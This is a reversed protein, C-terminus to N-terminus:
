ATGRRQQRQAPRQQWRQMWAQDDGTLWPDPPLPADPPPPGMSWVAVYQSPNSPFGGGQRRLQPDRHIVGARKLTGCVGAVQHASLGLGEALATTSVAGTKALMDLIQQQRPTRKM